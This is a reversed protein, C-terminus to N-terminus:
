FVFFNLSSFHFLVLEGIPSGFIEARGKLVDLYVAKSNSEVEFRLEEEKELIFTKTVRSSESSEENTGSM